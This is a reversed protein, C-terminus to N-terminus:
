SALVWSALRNFMKPEGVKTTRPSSNQPSSRRSSAMAHCVLPVSLGVQSRSETAFRVHSIAACIDAKLGFRFM